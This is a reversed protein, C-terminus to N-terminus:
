NDDKNEVWLEAQKLGALRGAEMLESKTVSCPNNDALVWVIEDTDSMFQCARAMRDQSAEDGDFVKGNLEVKINAVYNTRQLKFVERRFPSLVAEVTRVAPREPAVPLPKPENGEADQTTEPLEANYQEVAELEVLYDLYSKAWDWQEQQIQIEAFRELDNLKGKRVLEGIDKGIPRPILQPLGHEGLLPIDNQGLKIFFIIPELNNIM